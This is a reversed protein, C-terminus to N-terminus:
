LACALPPSVLSLCFQGGKIVKQNSGTVARSVRSEITREKNNELQLFSAQQGASAGPLCSAIALIGNKNISNMELAQNQALVLHTYCSQQFNNSAEWQNHTSKLIPLICHGSSLCQKSHQELPSGNAVQRVPHRSPQDIIPSQHYGLGAHGGQVRRPRNTCCQVRTISESNPSPDKQNLFTARHSRHLWVKHASTPQHANLFIFNVISRFSRSDEQSMVRTSNVKLVRAHTYRATHFNDFSNEFESPRYLTARAFDGEKYVKVGSHSPGFSETGFSEIRVM